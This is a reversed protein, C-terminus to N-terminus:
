CNAYAAQAFYMYTDAHNINQAASLSRVCNYGYCNYDQTGRISTLHTMEHLLVGAQSIGRCASTMAAYNNFWLPCYVQYALAPVAYAVVGGSCAPYIDTCYIRSAGSTSSGCESVIRNFVGQVTSRTASTSSKYFETLRAAPGSSAATAATSALTRCNSLANVIATRRTGTCDNQVVARKEVQAHWDRRVKAAAEGDVHTSIVNSNFSVTGAIATSDAEAYALAGVSNITFDGGSTLDHDIAVDFEIEVTEGAELVQFSEESLAGYDVWVRVGDFDIKSAGAFVDSKEVELTDLISGTKLVKLSESGTNTLHAKIATNGVLELSLDIPSDRKALEVSAANALSALLAGTFFKM